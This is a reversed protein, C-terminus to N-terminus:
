AIALSSLLVLLDFRFGPLFFLLQVADMKGGSAPPLSDPLYQVIRPFHSSPFVIPYFYATSIPNVTAEV